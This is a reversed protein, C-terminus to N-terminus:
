VNVPIISAISEDVKEKLEERSMDSPMIGNVFDVAKDADNVLSMYFDSYAPSAKFDDLAEQNKVFRKGDDSKVGYSKDIIEQFIKVMRRLDREAIIKELLKGLGGDQNLEMNFLEAKTLNFYFDETRSNGDYDEYTITEKYM